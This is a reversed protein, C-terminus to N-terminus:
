FQPAAAPLSASDIGECLANDVTLNGQADLTVTWITDYDDSQWIEAPATDGSGGYSALLANITPAFHDHEWALLITQNSFRGGTFFFEATAQFSSLEYFKIGDTSTALNYPLNNAVAYPVATLSPRVYSFDVDGPIPLSPDISYVRQPTIKGQLAGSYREWGARKLVRM